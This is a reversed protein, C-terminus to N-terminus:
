MIMTNQLPTENNRSPAPAYDPRVGLNPRANEWSNDISHFCNKKSYGAVKVSTDQDILSKNYPM